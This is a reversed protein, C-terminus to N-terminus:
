SLWSNRCITAHLVAAMSPLAFLLWRLSCCACPCLFDATEYAFFLNVAQGKIYNKTVHVVICRVQEFFPSWLGNFRASCAQIICFTLHWNEDHDCRPISAYVVRPSLSRHISSAILMRQAHGSSDRRESIDRDFLSCLCSSPRLNSYVFMLAFQLFSPTDFSLFRCCLTEVLPWTAVSTAGGAALANCAVASRLSFRFAANHCTAIPHCHFM